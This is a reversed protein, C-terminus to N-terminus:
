LIMKKLTKLVYLIVKEISNNNVDVGDEEVTTIVEKKTRNRLM